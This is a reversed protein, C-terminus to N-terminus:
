MIKKKKQIRRTREACNNLIFYPVKEQSIYVAARNVTNMEQVMEAEDTITRVRIRVGWEFSLFYTISTFVVGFIIAFEKALWWKGIRYSSKFANNRLYFVCWIILVVLGCLISLTYQNGGGVSRVSYYDAISGVSISTLGATLFLLHLVTNIIAIWLLRTNWLLPYHTLLYYNIRPIM